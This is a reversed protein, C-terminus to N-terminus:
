HLQICCNLLAISVFVSSTNLLRSTNADSAISVWSHSNNVLSIEFYSSDPDVILPLLYKTYSTQCLDITLDQLQSAFKPPESPYINLNINFYLWQSSDQHFKDYYALTVYSSITSNAALIDATMMILAFSTTNLKEVFVNIDSEEAVNVYVPDNEQDSFSITFNKMVNVVLYWDNNSDIIEWNNNKFTIQSFNNSSIIKQNQEVSYTNSIIQADFYLLNIGVTNIKTSDINFTSSTQNASIWTPTICDSNNSVQCVQILFKANQNSTFPLISINLDLNTGIRIITENQLIFNPLVPDWLSIMPEYEPWVCDTINYESYSILDGPDKLINLNQYYKVNIFSGLSYMQSANLSNNSYPLEVINLDSLSTITSNIFSNAGSFFTSWTDLMTNKDQRMIFSVQNSSILDTFNLHGIIYIQDEYLSSSDFSLSLNQQDNYFFYNTGSISLDDKISLTIINNAGINLHNFVLKYKSEKWM